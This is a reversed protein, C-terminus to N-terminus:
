REGAISAFTRERPRLWDPEKPKPRCCWRGGVRSEGTSVSAVWMSVVKATGGGDTTPSTADEAAVSRMDGAPPIRTSGTPTAAPM